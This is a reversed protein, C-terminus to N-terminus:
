PGPCDGSIRCPHEGIPLQFVDSILNLYLAGECANPEIRGGEHWENWAYLTVFHSLEDDQADIWTKVDQLGLAFNTSSHDTFHDSRARGMVGIRPRDDLNQMFCPMLVKGPKEEVFAM